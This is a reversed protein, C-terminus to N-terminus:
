ASTGRSPTSRTSWRWWPSPRSRPARRNARRHPRRAGGRGPSLALPHGRRGGRARHRQAYLGGMVGQLEPFERVMLTVLDAKAFRAARGAATTAEPSLGVHGALNTALLSIRDAKEKYSGLGKHFTVAALDDVRSEITRKRDENYFFRADKLRAIVVREQGQASM